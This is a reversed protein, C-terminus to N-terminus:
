TLCSFMCRTFVHVCVNLAATSLMESLWFCSSHGDVAPPLPGTRSGCRLPWVTHAASPRPPMTVASLCVCPVGRDRGPARFTVFGPCLASCQNGPALPQCSIACTLKPTEAEQNRHQTHSRVCNSVHIVTRKLHHRKNCTFLIGVFMFWPHSSLVVM